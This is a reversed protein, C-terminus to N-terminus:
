RVTVRHCCVSLLTQRALLPRMQRDIECFPARQTADTPAVSASTFCTYTDSTHPVRGNSKLRTSVHHKELRWVGPAADTPTSLLGIARKSPTRRYISPPRSKARGRPSKVNKHACQASGFCGREYWSMEKANSQSEQTLNLSELADIM